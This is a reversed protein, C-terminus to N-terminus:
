RDPLLQLRVPGSPVLTVSPPCARPINLIGGNTFSDEIFRSRTAGAFLIRITGNAPYRCMAVLRRVIEVTEDGRDRPEAFFNIGDIIIFLVVDRPLRRVLAEFVNCISTVDGPDTNEICYQLDKPEFGNYNDIVAPPPV